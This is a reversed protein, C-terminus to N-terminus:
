LIGGSLTSLYDADGINIIHDRLESNLIPPSIIKEKTNNLFGSEALVRVFVQALKNYTYDHWGAVVESYEAKEKLFAIIDSKKLNYQKLQCKEKIVEDMFEYFLRNSKMIAYLVVLRSNENYSNVVMDILRADLTCLRRYSANFMKSINKTTRYQFLNEERIKEQMEEKKLDQLILKAVQKTEFYLYPEGSMTANYEVNGM